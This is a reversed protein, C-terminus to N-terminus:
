RRGGEQIRRIMDGIRKAVSERAELAAYVEEDITGEMVLHRFRVSRTQGPRRLRARSQLYDGLSYGMSYYIAFASRTFDIGTGGAQLQVGAIACHESLTADRTLADSRRGSLEAYPRHLKAAVREIADLDHRFRAFVVVPEREAIDDLEDELLKEKAKSIEMDEGSDLRVSGGTIQQLRLIKVLVNDTTITDLSMTELQDLMSTGNVLVESYMEHEVERYVKRASPELQGPIRVDPIEDPLDLVEAGVRYTISAIKEALEDERQLGKVEHNNFGGLVAYRRRFHTHSTGFIGPDLARFEGFSDLPSQPFLTGTGGMREASAQTMKWAWKSWVGTGSKLKHVEDYGVMDFHQLVSWSKFPEHTCAAYNSLLVHPLGCRCENLAEDYMQVREPIPVLKWEGHKNERRPDIVHVERGAHIAFQKPWVGIVREPCTILVSEAGKNVILDTFVKSKGTGMEMDLMVAQMDRAFWFAQRQHLWADTKSNPVAPLDEASKHSTADKIRQAQALLEAMAEDHDVGTPGYVELITAATAPSPQYYYVGTGRGGYRGGPPRELHKLGWPAKLVLRGRDDVWAKTRLAPNAVPPPPPVHAARAEPASPVEPGRDRQSGPPAIEAYAIGRQELAGAYRELMRHARGRRTADLPQGVKLLAVCAHAFGIDAPQFARDAGLVRLAQEVTPNEYTM